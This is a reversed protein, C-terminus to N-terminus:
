EGVREAGLLPGTVETLNEPLVVLPRRPARWKTSGYDPWDYPPHIGAHDTVSM